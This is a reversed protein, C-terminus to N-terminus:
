RWDRVLDPLERLSTITPFLDADDVAAHEIEWTIEYPVHVARSGIDLVPLIDSRVSNGVMVFEGPPIGHRDLVRQYTAVDKETVIEIRWFHDALGSAAVKTEQHHLDGKTILVLRHCTALEAVTDEVGDILEIPHELLARGIEVIRKMEAGTIRADSVELATEIMSLVFAKVGYGFVELNRRETALLTQDTVPEPAYELLLARFVAQADAFGRESHWLTDDGDLGIIM